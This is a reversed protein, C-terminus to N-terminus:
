RELPAASCGPPLLTPGASSQCDSSIAREPTAGGAPSSRQRREYFCLMTSGYKRQDTLELQSLEIVEYERPHIQVVVLGDEAVVRSGDLMRLTRSWLGQYQPPAVYVIDFPEDLYTELFKFVDRRVVQGLNGLRTLDLNRRITALAREDREVFVARAAGRSLAEIGVGGTGAFLDLFRAEPVSDGLINFLSVKVRDTVPRTSDGPVAYLRRGKAQGTIVRM